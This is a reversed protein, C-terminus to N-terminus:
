RNDLKRPFPPIGPGLVYRYNTSTLPANLESALTAMHDKLVVLAFQMVRDESEQDTAGPRIQITPRQGEPFSVSYTAMGEIGRSLDWRTSVIYRQLAGVEFEMIIEPWLNGEKLLTNRVKRIAAFPFPEQPVEARRKEWWYDFREGYHRRLDKALVFSISNAATVFAAFCYRFGPAEGKTDKLCQLFYEAEGLKDVARIM